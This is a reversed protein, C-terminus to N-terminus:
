EGSALLRLGLAERAEPIDQVAALMEDALAKLEGSPVLNHEVSASLKVNSAREGLEKAIDDLAARFADHADRNFHENTVPGDKTPRVEKLWPRREYEKRASQAMESLGMIRSEKSAYIVGRVHAELDDHMRELRSKFAPHAVWRDLTRSAVAVNLAVQDLSLTGEFVLWLAQEKAATWKFVTTKAEAKDAGM